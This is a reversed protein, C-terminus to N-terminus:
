SVCLHTLHNLRIVHDSGLFFFCIWFADQSFFSYLNTRSCCQVLEFWSVGWWVLGSWNQQPLMIAIHFFGINDIFQSLHLFSWSHSRAQPSSLM